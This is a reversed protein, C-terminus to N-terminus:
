ALDRRGRLLHFRPEYLPLQAASLHTLGLAGTLPAIVAPIDDPEAQYHFLGSLAATARYANSPTRHFDFRFYDTVYDWEGDWEGDDNLRKKWAHSLAKPSKGGWDKRARPGTTAELYTGRTTTGVVYGAGFRSPTLSGFADEAPHNWSLTLHADDMSRNSRKEATALLNALGAHFVIVEVRESDPRDSANPALSAEGAGAALDATASSWWEAASANGAEAAAATDIALSADYLVM